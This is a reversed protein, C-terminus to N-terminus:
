FFIPIFTHSFIQFLKDMSALFHSCYILFSFSIGLAIKTPSAEKKNKSKKKKKKKFRKGTLYAGKNDKYKRKFDKTVAYLRPEGPVFAYHGRLLLMQEAYKQELWTMGGGWTSLKQDPTRLDGVGSIPPNGKVANNWLMTLKERHAPLKAKEEDSLIFTFGEERFIWDERAQAKLQQETLEQGWPPQPVSLKLIKKPESEDNSDRLPQYGLAVIEQERDMIEKRGSWNLKINSLKESSASRLRRFLNM